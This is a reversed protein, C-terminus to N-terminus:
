KKAVRAKKAAGKDARVVTKKAPRKGVIEMIEDGTLTERKLLEEALKAVMNKNKTLIKKADNYAADLWSRIEADVM